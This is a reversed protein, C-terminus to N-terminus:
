LFHQFIQTKDLVSFNTCLDHARIMIILVIILECDQDNIM